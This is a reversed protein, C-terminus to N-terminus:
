QTGTPVMNLHMIHAQFHTLLFCRQSNGIPNYTELIGKPVSNWRHFTMMDHQHRVDSHDKQFLHLRDIESVSGTGSFASSPGAIQAGRRRQPHQHGGVDGDASVSRDRRGLLLARGPVAAVRARRMLTPDNKTGRPSMTIGSRTRRIPGELKRPQNGAM